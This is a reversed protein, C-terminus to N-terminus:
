SCFLVEQCLLGHGSVYLIAHANTKIKSFKLNTFSQYEKLHNHSKSGVASDKDILVLFDETSIDITKM